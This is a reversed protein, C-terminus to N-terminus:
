TLAREYALHTVSRTEGEPVDGYRCGLIGLYVDAEDVLALSAAVHGAVTAPLDEMM